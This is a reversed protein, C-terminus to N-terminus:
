RAGVSKAVAEASFQEIRGGYFKVQPFNTRYVKQALRWMDFAAVVDVGALRAGWSSGGVGCFLDIGRPGPM